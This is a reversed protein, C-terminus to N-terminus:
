GNVICYGFTIAFFSADEENKFELAYCSHKPFGDHRYYTNYSDSDRVYKSIKATGFNKGFIMDEIQKYLIPNSIAVEIDIIVKNM